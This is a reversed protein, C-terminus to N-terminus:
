QEQPYAQRVPVLKALTQCESKRLICLGVAGGEVELWTFPFEPYMTELAQYSHGVELVLVGEDSLYEGM